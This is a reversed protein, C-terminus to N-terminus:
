LAPTDPCACGRVAVVARQNSLTARGIDFTENASLSTANAQTVAAAADHRERDAAGACTKTVFSSEPSTV